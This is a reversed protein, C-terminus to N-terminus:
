IACIHLAKEYIKVLLKFQGGKKYKYVQKLTYMNSHNKCSFCLDDHLNSPLNVIFPFTSDTVIDNSSAPPISAPQPDDDVSVADVVAAAELSAVSADVCAPDDSVFESPFVVM